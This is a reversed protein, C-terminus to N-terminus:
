LGPEEDQIYIVLFTIIHHRHYWGAVGDVVSLPKDTERLRRKRVQEWTGLERALLVTQVYESETKM